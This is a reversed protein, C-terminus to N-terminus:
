MVGKRIMNARLERIAVVLEKNFDSQKRDHEITMALLAILIENSDVRQKLLRSVMDFSSPALVKLLDLLAESM